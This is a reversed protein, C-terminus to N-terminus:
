AARADPEDAALADSAEAGTVVPVVEFSCLDAWRAVWRQILTVDECEFVQFSRTLDATAWSSKFTMGEPILRGDERMRRYVAAGDQNRFGTIIMFHM